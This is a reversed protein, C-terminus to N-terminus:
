LFDQDSNNYKSYHNDNNNGINDNDNREYSNKEKNDINNNDKKDKNDNNDKNDENDNYDENETDFIEDNDDEDIGKIEINIDNNMNNSELNQILTLRIDNQYSASKSEINNNNNKYNNDGKNINNNNKINKNDYNKNNNLNIMNLYDGDESKQSNMVIGERFSELKISRYVIYIPYFLYLCYVGNIICFISNFDKYQNFNLIDSLLTFIDCISIIVLLTKSTCCYSCLNICFLFCTTTYTLSSIVNLLIIPNQAQSQLTIILLYYPTILSILLLALFFIICGSKFIICVNNEEKSERRANENGFFDFGIGLKELFSLESYKKYRSM